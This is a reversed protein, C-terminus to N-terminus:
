SSPTRYFPAFLGLQEPLDDDDSIPASLLSAIGLAPNDILQELTAADFAVRRKKRHSIEFFASYIPHIRYENDGPENGSTRKSRPFSEFALHGIGDNLLRVLNNVSNAEGTLTFLNQEPAVGATRTREFFVRGIGLVLRKLRVGNESVGELQELRKQGLTKAALTQSRPSVIFPSPSAATRGAYEEVISRDLLEMFYRINGSAMALFTAAGAYYKKIQAGRRGKSLWFLMSYSYNGWRIDWSEKNLMWDRVLADVTEESHADKWYAVLAVRTIHQAKLFERLEAYEPGALAQVVAGAVRQVGLLVAEEEISLAPLFEDLTRPVSVGSESARALRFEAVKRGFLEFGESPIDIEIYDDPTQLQDNSDITARSHLGNSRVGVKYSLPETSHKIYTNIISQHLGRLNEYEDICCFIPRDQAWPLAAIFEALLRVPREAMSLVPPTLRAPNNIYLELQIVADNISDHLESALSPQASVNLALAVKMLDDRSLQPLDPRVDAVWSLLLCFERCALLNFYHAFLKGWLREDVEPGEFARVQNKDMRLYIGLYALGEVAASDPDIHRLLGNAADFRLSRLSTTKGTGRGGFLFCPRASELKAFYAPKVFYDAFKGSPWEARYDGFLDSIIEQDSVIAEGPTDV